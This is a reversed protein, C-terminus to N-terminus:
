FPFFNEGWGEFLLVFDNENVYKKVIMLISYRAVRWFFILGKAASISTKSFDGRFQHGWFTSM